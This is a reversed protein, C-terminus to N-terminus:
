AAKQWLTWLAKQLFIYLARQYFATSNKILSCFDEFWYNFFIYTVICCASTQKGSVVETRKIILM